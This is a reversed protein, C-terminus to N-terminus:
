AITGEEFALGDSDGTASVRSGLFAVEERSEGLLYVHYMAAVLEAGLLDELM